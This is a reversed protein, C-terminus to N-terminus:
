ASGKEILDAAALVAAAYRRLAVPDGSSRGHLVAFSTGHLEVGERWAFAIGARPQVPTPPGLAHVVRGRYGGPWSPVPPDPWALRRSEDVEVRESREGDRSMRGDPRSRTM